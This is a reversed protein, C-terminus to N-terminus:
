RSSAGAAAGYAEAFRELPGPLESVKRDSSRLGPIEIAIRARGPRDDLGLYIRHRGFPMLDDVIRDGGIAFWASPDFLPQMEREFLVALSSRESEFADIELLLYDRDGAFFGHSSILQDSSPEIRRTAERELALYAGWLEQVGAALQARATPDIGHEDLTGEALEPRDDRWELVPSTFPHTGISMNVVRELPEFDYQELEVPEPVGFRQELESMPMSEYGESATNVAPAGLFFLAVGGLLALGLPLVLCGVLGWVWIPTKRTRGGAHAPAHHDGRGHNGHRHQGGHPAPSSAGGAVAPSAALDAGALGAAFAAAEGSSVSQVDTRVDGARQYRREPERALSRLVVEDLRVDVAVTASPPPFAGVPVEGTLLEYFVVGLSYIDARHDVSLPRRIQEPAMYHMTGMAQDSRTLLSADASGGVLKALGFDAIKVNGQADVLINEPKIDRHVVGKDHAYQLAECVQSVISLAEAPEVGGARILQRLNLGDVFEMLFFYRQGQRGADHVRVIAPHDLQALVRAEREFREAFAPDEGIEDPLIKLAVLRDLGPQRAKYVAGMGGRGILTLLELQPFEVALQALSPPEWPRPGPRESELGARMLCKPCLGSIRGTAPLNAGCKECSTMETM